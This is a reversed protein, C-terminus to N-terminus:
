KSLSEANSTEGEVSLKHKKSFRQLFFVFLFMLAV